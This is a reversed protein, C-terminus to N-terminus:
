LEYKECLQNLIMKLMKEIKELREEIESDKKPKQTIQDYLWNGLINSLVDINASESKPKEFKM